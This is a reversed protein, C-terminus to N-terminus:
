RLTFAYVGLAAVTWFSSCNSPVSAPEPLLYTIMSQTVAPNSLPGPEDSRGCLLPLPLHPPAPPPCRCRRPRAPRRRLRLVDTPSGTAVPAGAPPWVVPCRTQTTGCLVPRDSRACIHQTDCVTRARSTSTNELWPELNARPAVMLQNSCLGLTGCRTRASAYPHRM